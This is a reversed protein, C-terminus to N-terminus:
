LVRPKGDLRCHWRLVPDYDGASEYSEEPERGEMLDRVEQERREAASLKGCVVEGAFLIGLEDTREM